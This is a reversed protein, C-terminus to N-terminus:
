VKCRNGAARILIARCQRLAIPQCGNRLPIPMLPDAPSRLGPHEGKALAQILRDVTPNHRAFTPLKEPARLSIALDTKPDWQFRWLRAARFPEQSLDKGLHYFFGGSFVVIRPAGWRLPVVAVRQCAPSHIGTVIIKGRLVAEEAERELGDLEAKTHSPLGCVGAVYAKNGHLLRVNGYLWLKGAEYYGPEADYPLSRRPPQNQSHSNSM